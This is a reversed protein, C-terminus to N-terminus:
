ESSGPIKKAKGINPEHNYLPEVVSYRAFKKIKKLDKALVRSEGVVPIKLAYALANATIVGIRLATFSDGRDAVVIKKLASLKIKQARLLRDIAPLLKEAQQRAAKFKKRAVIKTGSRSARSLIIIIEARDATNIHLTM